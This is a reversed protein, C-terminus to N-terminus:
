RKRSPIEGTIDKIVLLIGPKGAASSGTIKRANLAMRKHGIAPFDHEVRYDEFKFNQPLIEELFKRLEPIDWQGNGLEYILHGETEEQSAKFTEYFSENASIIRLEGDLVILPERITEVISRAYEISRKLETIDTFTLVVGDITNQDSRYPVVQMLHWKGNKLQVEREENQLTKLVRRACTEIDECDLNSRIDCLPRGVDVPLLNFVETAKSTFRNICLQHDLFIIGIHTNELLIKMDNETQSLQDIKGQLESNVTTLEENMSQLEERSTEMEENTSQLEENTSQMEENTSKLEENAAQLEEVTAQLNERTYALEREVETLREEKEHQPEGTKRRRDPKVKERELIDEFLITVLGKTERTPTFPRITLDILQHEHNTKLRLKEYRREKMNALAYHIGSRLEFQMGKRAMDFINWSPRGSAPELYKGTQGHIYLIEGKDNSIVSPPAFTELLMKQAASAVDFEKSKLSKQDPEAKPHGNVWPLGRWPEEQASALVKTARFIKQKRDEIEFLDVFKGITESTGLFLIGGPKLSYHFLPVLRNQLDPELYILLNRCSLLDLRTFPPDKTIDQPAFVISERIEKKVRFTNGDKTFYRRLRDNNVDVAINEGYSANRAFNIAEVDIDTAFIQIKLDRKLADLCEIILIAVSYAEEGTGCAPVWARFTHGGPQDHLYEKLRKSLAEFAEEDRFFQTVGILMDKFLSIVEEPHQELYGAYAAMSNLGQLNMRKEIRRNLTTKKYLSLDHGTRSRILSLIQRLRDKGPVLPKPKKGLNKSYNNLQLAMKEPSLVFDALGTQIASDPMGSYKASAPTQVMVMGGAGHIARVGMTGDTGTGSLIIGIAMEGSDEALSRLFSDIPLRVGLVKKLPELNLTGDSISIDRNPPIVHICNPRVTMGDEAEKVELKTVRKLLETMMSAHSPDLHPVLIFAMGIDLPVTSFLQEFAELGGASAGVGVVPFLENQAIGKKAPSAAGTGTKKSKPKLSKKAPKTQKM